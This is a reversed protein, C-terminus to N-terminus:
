RTSEQTTAAKEDWKVEALLSDIKRAVEALEKPGAHAYDRVTKKEGGAVVTTIVTANDTVPESYGDKLNLFGHDLVFKVVEDFKEKPVKGTHVGKHEVHM